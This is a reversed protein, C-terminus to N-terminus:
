SVSEVTTKDGNSLLVADVKKWSSRSEMSDEDGLRLKQQGAVAEVGEIVL